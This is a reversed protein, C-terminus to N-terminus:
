RGEAKYIAAEMLGWAANFDRTTDPDCPCCRRIVRLAILMEPAAAILSANAAVADPFDTTVSAVMAERKGSMAYIACGAEPGDDGIVWPGPTHSVQTVIESPM